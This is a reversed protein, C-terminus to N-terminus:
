MPAISASNGSVNMRYMWLRRSGNPSGVDPALWGHMYIFLTGDAAKVFDAGGPGLMKGTSGLWPKTTSTKKCPGLATDCIAHGNAYKATQWRYGSYFLHYSGGAHIMAPNELVGGGSDFEWSPQTKARSVLLHESGTLNGNADLPRIFANGSSMDATDQRWLLYDNGNNDSFVSPDISWRASRCLFPKTDNDVFTGSISSAVARGICHQTTAGKIESAYYLIWKGSKARYVTPAWFGSSAKKWPASGLATDVKSWTVLDKSSKRRVTSGTAFTYYTGGNRVMFPDAWGADFVPNSPVKCCAACNSAELTSLGACEAAASACRNGGAQKCTPATAGGSGGAGAQGAAGASGAAGGSGAASGAVGAAGANAGAGAAGASGGAAGADVSKSPAGDEASSCAWAIAIGLLAFRPRARLM